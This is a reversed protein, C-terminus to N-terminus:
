GGYGAFLDGYAECHLARLDHREVICARAVEALEQPTFREAQGRGGLVVDMCQWRRLLKNSAAGYKRIIAGDPLEGPGTRPLLSIAPVDLAFASWFPASSTTV